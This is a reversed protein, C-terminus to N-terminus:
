IFLLPSLTSGQHGIKVEFGNSNGYVTRTKVVTILLYIFLSHQIGTLHSCFTTLVMPLIDCEM